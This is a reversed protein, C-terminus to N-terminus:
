VTYRNALTEEKGTMWYFFRVFKDKLSVFFIKVHQGPTTRFHTLITNLSNVSDFCIFAHGSNIFPKMTEEILQNEYEEMKKDFMENDRYSKPIFVSAFGPKQVSM